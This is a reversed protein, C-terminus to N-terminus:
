QTLAGGARGAVRGPAIAEYASFEAWVPLHDSVQKVQEPSLNHLRGIDYVGWRGTFEGTSPQHLMINDYQSTKAANTPVGRVVARMNPIQGLAGLHQDDVNLDGLIIIDDEGGSAQRVVHYV